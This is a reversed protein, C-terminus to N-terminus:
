IYGIPAFDVPASISQVDLNLLCHLSSIAKYQNNMWLQVMRSQRGTDLRKDFIEIVKCTCRPYADGKSLSIAPILPIFDHCTM